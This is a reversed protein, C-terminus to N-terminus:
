VAYRRAVRGMRLSHAWWGLQDLLLHAARRRREEEDPRKATDSERPVGHLSMAQRITAAHLQALVTRLHEM